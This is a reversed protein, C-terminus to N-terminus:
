AAVYVGLFMSFLFLLGAEFGLRWRIPALRIEMFDLIVLRAKIYVIALTGVGAWVGISKENSLAFSVVVAIFLVFLTRHQAVCLFQFM